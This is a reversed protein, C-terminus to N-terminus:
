FNHVYIGNHSGRLNQYEIPMEKTQRFAAKLQKRIRRYEVLAEQSITTQYRPAIAMALRLVLYHDFSEPLFSETDATIISPLTIWKGLDDRYLLSVSDFNVDITLSTLNDIRRSGGNVTLPSTEFTGEGDVIDIRCGNSPNAPLTWTSPSNQRVVVSSNVPLINDNEKYVEEPLNVDGIVIPSLQEGVEIGLLSKVIKSLRFLTETFVDAEPTTGSQLLGLERFSDNIIERMTTM